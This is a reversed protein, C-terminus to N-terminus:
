FKLPDNLLAVMLKVANEVDRHDVMESPTHIYRCPISLCGAVVGSRTLQIASADTTGMKLIELQYPLNAKKATEVMWDVIRPDALMYRDRIKIAPGKGLAVEMVQGQPTDGVATVDVALGLDPDVGYAATTAGRLGVEEQSSFVFFSEHPSSFNNQKLQRLTEILVVAGIRDDMAKSVWRPGMEQFPRDFVAVDGIGIKSTKENEAGTDIYLQEFTPANAPSNLREMGIVGMVGNIFRVRGGLCSQPSVGGLPIFRLFGRKDVHTVILGIEDIHASLMIRLGGETRKGLRVILNGLNDVRIEDGYPEVEAQVAARIQTEYGSPGPIEVLKQILSKM